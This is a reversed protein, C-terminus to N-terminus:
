LESFFYRLVSSPKRFHPMFHIASFQRLIPSLTNHYPSQPEGPGQMKETHECMM